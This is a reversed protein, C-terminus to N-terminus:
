ECKNRLSSFASKDGLVGRVLSVPPSCRRLYVHTDIHRIRSGTKTRTRGNGRGRGVIDERESVTLLMLVVKVGEGGVEGRGGRM